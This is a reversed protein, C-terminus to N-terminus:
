YGYGLCTVYSSLAYQIKTIRHIYFKISIFFAPVTNKQRCKINSIFFIHAIIGNSVGDINAFQLNVGWIQLNDLCRYFFLFNNNIPVM